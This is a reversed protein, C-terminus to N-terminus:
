VTSTSCLHLAHVNNTHPIAPASMLTSYSLFVPLFFYFYENLLSFWFFFFQHNSISSSWEDNILIANSSVFLALFRTTSIHPLILHGSNVSQLPVISHLIPDQALAKNEAIERQCEEPRSAPSAIANRHQGQSLHM